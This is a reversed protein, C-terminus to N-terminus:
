SKIFLFWDGIYDTYMKFCIQFFENSTTFFVFFGMFLNLIFGVMLINMQPIVRSVIGLVAQLLLNSFIIPMSLLVSSVFLSKFFDMFYQSSMDLKQLNFINITDFSIMAGKLMPVLAGSNLIIILITWHILKEIAGVREGFTPDYYSGASFGIQQSILGGASTFITLVSKVLYGLLIGVLLHYVTLLIVSDVGYATLEKTLIEKTFPFFIFNIMLIILLKLTNPFNTIDFLPLQMLLGAWRSFGLWFAFLAYIDTVNISIM